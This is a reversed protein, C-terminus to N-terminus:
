FMGSDARFFGVDVLKLLYDQLEPLAADIQSSLLESLASLTISEESSIILEKIYQNIGSAQIEQFVEINASNMLFTFRGDIETISSNTNVFLLNRLAPHQEM